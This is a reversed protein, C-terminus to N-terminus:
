TEPMVSLYTISTYESSNMGLLQATLHRSFRPSGFIGMGSLKRCSSASLFGMSSTTASYTGSVLRLPCFRKPRQGKWLSFVGENQTEGEFCIYWQKPQPLPPLTIFKMM